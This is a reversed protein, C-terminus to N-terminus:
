ATTTPTLPPPIPAPQPVPEPAPPPAPRPAPAPTNWAPGYNGQPSATTTPSQWVPAPPPPPPMYRNSTTGPQEFPPLVVPPAQPPPTPPPAPESRLGTYPPFISMPDPTGQPPTAAAPTIPSQRPSSADAVQQALARRTGYPVNPYMLALALDQRSPLAM